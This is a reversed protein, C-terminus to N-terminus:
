RPKRIYKKQIKSPNTTSKPSLIKNLEEKTYLRRKLIEERITRNNKLASKVIDATLSYGIYPVLATATCLSKEFLQQTRKENVKLDKICLDTFTKIGNTLIETSQLINYMIVPCMVNMDLQSKQASLEITKDNGLVHLCIMEMCEPISPNVKGPMISSGPQVEPLSIENIGAKPGMSLIKLDNSINLLNTALSRLASSFNMFVNMNHTTETLNKAPKFQIKTIESLNKIMLKTYGPDTNIGTGLATGGIGLIKLKESQQKLFKKSNKLAEKYAYFEQGFTIPVADQLHTRGVKITNK